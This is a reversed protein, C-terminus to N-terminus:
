SAKNATIRTIAASFDCAEPFTEIFWNKIYKYPSENNKVNIKATKRMSMFQEKQEETGYANVYTEMKDYSFGKSSSKHTIEKIIITYNPFDRKIEVLTRYAESGYKTAEKSEKKTMEIHKTTHIAKM